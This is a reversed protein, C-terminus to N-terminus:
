AKVGAPSAAATRGRQILRYVSVFSGVISLVVLAILTYAVFPTRSFQLISQGFFIALLGIVCFRVFRSAALISFLSKRPFQLAAAGAVFATFPFPPPMLASLAIAWGAKNSIKRKVYEIRKPPLIRALGQEGGKRAVSDILFCGASSGLTAMAAYYLLWNHHQSTLGLMLLDNGLPVFLFSSDLIGMLILGVGGLQAAVGFFALLSSRM